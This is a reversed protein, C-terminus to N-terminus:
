LYLYIKEIEQYNDNILNIFEVIEFNSFANEIQKKNHFFLDLENILLTEIDKIGLEKLYKIIKSCEEENCYLDFIYSPNENTQIINITDETIDYKKLFDLM